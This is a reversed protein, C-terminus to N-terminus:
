SVFALSLAGFKLTEDALHVLHAEGSDKCWESWPHGFWFNNTAWITM